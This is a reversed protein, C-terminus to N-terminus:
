KRHSLDHLRGICSCRCVVNKIVGCNRCACIKVGEIFKVELGLDPTLSINRARAPNPSTIKSEPRTWAEFHPGKVVRHPYTPLLWCPSISLICGPGVLLLFLNFDNGLHKQQQYSSILPSKLPTPCAHMIGQLMLFIQLKKLILFHGLFINITRTVNPSKFLVDLRATTAWM